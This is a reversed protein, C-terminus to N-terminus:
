PTRPAAGDLQADAARLVAEDLRGALAALRLRDLLLAARAQVLALRAASADNEADLLDLTTRQGVERGTRTADLRSEAAALSQALARVRPTGIDLGLWAARAQQEVDLQLRELEAGAQDVLRLAQAQQAARMGGTYLPVTLLVGVGHRTAANSAGSGFDGSGGVRERGAQAVLDLSLSGQKSHREADTRAREVALRQMALGPNATAADALWQELPRLPPEAAQLTPLRPAIASPALGTADALRRRKLQLETELALVQAQVAAQRAQAEHTDTIPADGLRFRDQAETAAREVADRQLRLVRLSEAAVAADVYREATRLMLAQQAAQWQLEALDAGLNLQRQQARREGNVLPLRAQLAWSTSTGNTVSTDFAAGSAAGFGPASFQAGRTKSEATALGASATLAVSPRWLAAAQDRQPQAAAHAARAVAYERDHQQAAQWAQLLELASAPTAIVTALLAIGAAALRHGLPRLRKAPTM